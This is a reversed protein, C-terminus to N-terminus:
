ISVHVVLHALETRITSDHFICFLVPRDTRSGDTVTSTYRLFVSALCCLFARNFSRFRLTQIYPTQYATFDKTADTHEIYVMKFMQGIIKDLDVGTRWIRNYKNLDFPRRETEHLMWMYM